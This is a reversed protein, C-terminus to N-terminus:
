LHCTQNSIAPNIDLDLQEHLVKIAADRVM